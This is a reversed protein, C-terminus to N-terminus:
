PHIGVIHTKHHQYATFLFVTQYQSWYSPTPTIYKVNKSCEKKFILKERNM